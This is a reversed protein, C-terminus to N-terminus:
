HINVQSMHEIYHTYIIQAFGTTVDLLGRCVRNMGANLCELKVIFYRQRDMEYNLVLNAQTFQKNCVCREESSLTRNMEQTIAKKSTLTFM